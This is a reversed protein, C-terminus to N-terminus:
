NGTVTWVPDFLWVRQPTVSVGTDLNVRTPPVVMGLIAISNSFQSYYLYGGLAGASAAQPLTTAWTGDPGSQLYVPHGIAGDLKPAWPWDDCFILGWRLVKAQSETHMWVTAYSNDGDPVNVWAMGTYESLALGMAPNVLSDSLQAKRWLGDGKLHLAHGFSVASEMIQSYDVWGRWGRSNTGDVICDPHPGKWADGPWHFEVPMVTVLIDRFDQATIDGKINDALLKRLAERNRPTDAM